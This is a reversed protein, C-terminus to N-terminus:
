EDRQVQNRTFLGLGDESDQYFEQYSEKILTM